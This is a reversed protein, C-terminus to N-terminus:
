KLSKREYVALLGGNDIKEYNEKVNLFIEALLKYREMRSARENKFTNNRYLISWPDRELELINQDVFLFRPKEKKIINVAEEFDRKSLIYANLDFIPMASYREALFPIIGDYKSIIYIKPSNSDSYKHILQTSEEFIHPNLTSIVTARKNNWSFIKHDVFNKMVVFKEAYFKQAAIILIVLGLMVAGKLIINFYNQIKNKNQFINNQLIFITLIFQLWAFPMVPPLHNTLGSWFYYTLNIQSYIFIFIYAYKLYFSKNRLYILFIYSFVLYVITALVIIEKPPWSLYGILYYFFVRNSAAIMKIIVAAALLYVILFILIFKKKEKNINENAFFFFSFSLAFVQAM